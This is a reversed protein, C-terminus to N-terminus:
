RKGGLYFEINSPKYGIVLKKDGKDSEIIEGLPLNKYFKGKETYLAFQTSFSANEFSEIKNPNIELRELYRAEVLGKLAEVRVEALTELLKTEDDIEKYYIKKKVPYLDRNEKELTITNDARLIYNSTYHLGENLKVVGVTENVSVVAKGFNKIGFEWLRLAVTRANIKGITFIVKKNAKDLRSEMYCDYYKLYPLLLEEWISYVKFESPPLLDTMIIDSIRSQEFEINFGPEVQNIFETLVKSFYDKLYTFTSFSIVIENNFVTKLDSAQLSTQNNKDLTPIGAFAGYSYRGRDDSFVVFTPNVDEIFPESICTFDDFDVARRKITYSGVNLSANNQLAKFDKDYFTIFM